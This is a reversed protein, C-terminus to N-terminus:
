MLGKTDTHYGHRARLQEEEHQSIYGLGTLLDGILKLTAKQLDPHIDDRESVQAELERIRGIHWMISHKAAM